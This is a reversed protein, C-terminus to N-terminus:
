LARPFARKTPTGNVLFRGPARPTLRVDPFRLSHVLQAARLWEKVETVKPYHGSIVLVLILVLVAFSPGLTLELTGNASKKFHLFPQFHLM